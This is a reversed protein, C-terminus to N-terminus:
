DFYLALSAPRERHAATRLADARQALARCIAALQTPALVEDTVPLALRLVCHGDEIVVGVGVLKANAATLVALSLEAEAGVHALFVLADAGLLQAPRIAIQVGQDDDRVQVILRVNGEPDIAVAAGPIRAVAEALTSATMM